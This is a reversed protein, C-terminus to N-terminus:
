LFCSSPKGLDCLTRSAAGSILSLGGIKFAPAEWLVRLGVSFGGSMEAPLSSSCGLCARLNAGTDLAIATCGKLDDEDILCRTVTSAM